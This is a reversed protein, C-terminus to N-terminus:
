YSHFPGFLIGSLETWDVEYMKVLDMWSFRFRKTRTHLAWSGHRMWPSVEMPLVLRTLHSAWAM